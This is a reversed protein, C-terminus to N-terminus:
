CRGLRQLTSYPGVHVNMLYRYLAVELKELTGVETTPERLEVGTFIMSDPLYVWHNIGKTKIRLEQVEKWIRDM